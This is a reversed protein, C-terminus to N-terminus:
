SRAFDVIKAATERGDGFPDIIGNHTAAPVVYLEVDWGAAELLTQFSESSLLPVLRDGSGHILAVPFVPEELYHAPNGLEWPEAVEEPTGGFWPVMFSGLALTDYPGAIGIFGGIDVAGAAVCRANGFQTGSMAVTSALHAGASHGTVFLPGVGGFEGAASSAATLACYVDEYSIPFGGGNQGTLYTANFVVAGQGAITRAFEATSAPEGGYWSGGHFFVVTPYEGPDLPFFVEASRGDVVPVESRDVALPTAPVVRATRRDPVPATPATPPVTTTPITTARVTTSPAAPPATVVPADAAVCSMTAVALSLLGIRGNM